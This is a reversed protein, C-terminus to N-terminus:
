VGRVLASEEIKMNLLEQTLDKTKETQKPVKQLKISSLSGVKRNFATSGTNRSYVSTGAKRENSDQLKTFIATDEKRTISINSTTNRLPSSLFIPTEENLQVDNELDLGDKNRKKNIESITSRATSQSIPGAITQFIDPDIKHSTNELAHNVKPTQHTGHQDHSPDESTPIESNSGELQNETIEVKANITLEGVTHIKPLTSNLISEQIKESSKAETFDTPPTSDNTTKIFAEKRRGGFLHKLFSM